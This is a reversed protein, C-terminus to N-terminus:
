KGQSQKMLEQTAENWLLDDLNLVDRRDSSKTTIVSFGKETLLREAEKAEVETMALSGPNRYLALGLDVPCSRKKNPNYNVFKYPQDDKSALVYWEKM